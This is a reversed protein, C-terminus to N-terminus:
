INTQAPPHKSGEKLSCPCQPYTFIYDLKSQIMMERICKYKSNYTLEAITLLNKVYDKISMIM